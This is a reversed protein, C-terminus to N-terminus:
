KSHQHAEAKYAWGDTRDIWEADIVSPFWENFYKAEDM